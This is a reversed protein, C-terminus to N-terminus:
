GNRTCCKGLVFTIGPAYPCLANKGSKSLTIPYLNIERFDSEGSLGEHM